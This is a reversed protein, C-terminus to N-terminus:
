SRREDDMKSNKRYSKVAVFIVLLLVLGLLGAAVYLLSLVSALRCDLSDPAASCSPSVLAASVSAFFRESQEAILMATMSKVALM